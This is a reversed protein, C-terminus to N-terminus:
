DTYRLRATAQDLGTVANATTPDIRFAVLLSGSQIDAITMPESQGGFVTELGKLDVFEDFYTKSEAGEEANGPIAVPNVTFVKDRLVRFRDTTDWRVNSLVSSAETGAQDTYGFIQSYAPIGTGSPQRDYILVMRIITGRTFAVGGNNDAVTVLYGRLRVSKMFIRRGVRNWSGNGARVLNVPYIQDNTNTTGLIPAAPGLVTDMGKLEASSRMAVYQRAAQRSVAIMPARPVASTFRRPAAKRVNSRNVKRKKLRSEAM